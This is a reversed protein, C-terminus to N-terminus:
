HFYKPLAFARVKRNPNNTGLVLSSSALRAAATQYVATYALEVVQLKRLLSALSLIKKVRQEKQSLTFICNVKLSNKVEYNKM